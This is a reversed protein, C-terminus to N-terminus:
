GEKLKLAMRGKETPSCSHRINGDRSLHEHTVIYGCSELRDRSGISPGQLTCPLRGDRDAADVVERLVAWHEDPLDPLQRSEYHDLVKDVLWTILGTM